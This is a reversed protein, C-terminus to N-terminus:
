SEKKRNESEKEFVCMKISTKLSFKEGTQYWLEIIAASLAKDTLKKAESAFAVKTRTVFVGFVILMIALICILIIIM